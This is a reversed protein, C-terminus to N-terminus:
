ATHIALSSQYAASLAERQQSRAVFLPDVLAAAAAVGAVLDADATTAGATEVPAAVMRRGRFDSVPLATTARNAVTLALRLLAAEAATGIGTVLAAMTAAEEEATSMPAGSAATAHHHLRATIAADVAIIM